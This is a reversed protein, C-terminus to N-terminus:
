EKDCNIELVLVCEHLPTVQEDTVRERDLWSLDSCHLEFVFENWKLVMFQTKCCYVPNPLVNFLDDSEFSINFLNFGTRTQIFHAVGNCGFPNGFESRVEKIDFYFRSLVKEIESDYFFRDEFLSEGDFKKAFLRIKAYRETRGRLDGAILARYDELYDLLNSMGIRDANNPKTALYLMEFLPEFNNNFYGDKYVIRNPGSGSLKVYYPQKHGDCADFTMIAFIVKSLSYVDAREFWLNSDEIDSPRPYFSRNEFEPPRYYNSGIISDTYIRELSDSAIALGFDAIVPDFSETFLINDPKLDRHYYKLGHITMLTRVINVCIEIKKLETLRSDLKRLDVFRYYKKMVYCSDINSDDGKVSIIPYCLPIGSKMNANLFELAKKEAKFREMRKERNGNKYRFVKLVFQNDASSCVLSNGGRDFENPFSYSVKSGGCLFIAEFCRPKRTGNNDSRNKKM